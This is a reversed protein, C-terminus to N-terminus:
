PLLDPGKQVSAQPAMPWSPLSALHTPPCARRSDASLDPCSNLPATNRTPPIPPTLKSSTGSPFPASHCTQPISPVRVKWSQPLLHTAPSTPPCGCSTADRRGFFISCSPTPSLAPHQSLLLFILCCPPQQLGRGACFTCSPSPPGHLPLLLGLKGWLRPESPFCLVQCGPPLHSSDRQHQSLLMDIPFALPSPPTSYVLLPMTILSHCVGLSSGDLLLLIPSQFTLSPTAM